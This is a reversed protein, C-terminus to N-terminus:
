KRGRLREISLRISAQMRSIADALDGIEDKSNVEIQADLEGVSIRETVQSLFRIKRTLNRGYISIILAIAFLGVAMGLVNLKGMKATLDTIERELKKVPLSLEKVHLTTAIVYDTGEVPTCVMFKEREKGKADQYKYYGKSKKGNYALNYIKWWKHSEKNLNKIMTKPFDTGILNSDQHVWVSSLGNEDPVSFLYTYDTLGLKQEVLRKFNIDDNFNEKELDPHNLLYHKTQTAVTSSFMVTREEAMSLIAKSGEMIILDRNQSINKMSFFVSIGYIIIVPVLIFLMFKTTLGFKRSKVDSTKLMKNTASKHVEERELAPQDPQHIGDFEVFTKELLRPERQEQPTVEAKSVKIMYGCSQCKAMVKERKIKSPDIRYRKGCEECFVIM